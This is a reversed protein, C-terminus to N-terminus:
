ERKDTETNWDGRSGGRNGNQGTETDTSEKGTRRSGTWTRHGGAGAQRQRNQGAVAWQTRGRGTGTGEQNYEQNGGRGTRRSRRALGVESGAM